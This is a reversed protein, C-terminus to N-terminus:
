FELKMDYWTEGGHISKSVGYNMFGMKEYYSVLKDKCTLICGRRNQLKSDSIVREMMMAAYGNRRYEPLVAVGFIAQWKGSEDHLEAKEFMEDVIALENTVMGDIFGIIKEDIELLWFHDPYATLRDRLSEETAAEAVPFCEKEIRAIDDLDDITASRINM